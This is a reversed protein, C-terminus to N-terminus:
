EATIFGQVYRMHSVSLFVNVLLLNERRRTICSLLSLTVQHHHHQSTVTGTHLNHVRVGAGEGVSAVSHSFDPDEASPYLRVVFVKKGNYPIMQVCSLVVIDTNSDSSQTFVLQLLGTSFYLTHSKKGLM